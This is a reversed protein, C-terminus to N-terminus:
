YSFVLFKEGSIKSLIKLFDAVMLNRTVTTLIPVHVFICKSKLCGKNLYRLILYYLDECVFKGADNSIETGDLDVVLSSLLAM